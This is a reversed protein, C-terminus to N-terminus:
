SNAECKYIKFCPECNFMIFHKYFPIRLFKEGSNETSYFEQVQVERRIIYMYFDDLVTIIKRCKNKKRANHIFM